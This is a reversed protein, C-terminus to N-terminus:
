EQQSRLQLGVALLQATQQASTNRLEQLDKEMKDRYERQSKLKIQAERPQETQQTSTTKVRQSQLKQRTEALQEQHRASEPKLAQNEQQLARQGDVNKWLVTGDEQHDCKRNTPLLTEATLQVRQACSQKRVRLKNDPPCL